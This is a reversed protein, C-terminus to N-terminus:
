RPLTEPNIPGPPGEKEIIRAAADRPDHESIEIEDDEDDPVNADGMPASSFDVIPQRTSGCRCRYDEGRKRWEDRDVATGCEPCVLQEPTPITM